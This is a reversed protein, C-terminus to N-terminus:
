LARRDAFIVRAFTMAGQSAPCRRSKPRSPIDVAWSFGPRSLRSLGSKPMDVIPWPRATRARILAKPAPPSCQYLIDGVRKM